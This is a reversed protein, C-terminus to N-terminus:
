RVESSIEGDALRTVIMDGVKVQSKSRLIKGDKMTLSYGKKLLNEPSSLTIEKEILELRHAKNLLFMYTKVALDQQAKQMMQLKAKTQQSSNVKLQQTFIALRNKEDYLLDKVKHPINASLRQIRMVERDLISQTASIIAQQAMKLDEYAEDMCSVLFEAVATPTKCRTHAVLDLISEDRQHGIGTIIPLPFQTCNFALEYNDFSSLETTAGGGRIIVVADFKDQHEFIKDLADIITPVTQEGQMVAPFLKTYFVFDSAGLQDMFDGYGAATASSIVAIRQPNSSLPLEKNMDMVGDEQLRRIIEMRQRAMDGLTFNPDIDRINLSIGYLEHYEVSCSVLVKIGARLTEGTSSEFYPKLMRFTSSWCNAKTKALIRDTAADKEVLELYAHGSYNEHMESIEARVWLPRDFSLKLQEKIHENLELLSLSQEQM